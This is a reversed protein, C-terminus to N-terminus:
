SARRKESDHSTEKPQQLHERALIFGKKGTEKHTVIKLQKSQVAAKLAMEFDKRSMVNHVEGYLDEASLFRHFRVFNILEGVHRAEDVVGIAEFVRAMDPEVLETFDLAESLDEEEIVLEERKAAALIMALKHMHTQKRAIYGGYRDSAMHAPRASWHHAYWKEGFKYADETMSYPGGMEGIACLDEVLRKENQWFDDPRGQRAPYAVLHRKREAYVFVIRSTLGGGIMHEPFHNQIWSPTTAGIMNIWPNKIVPSGSSVTRHQWDILKGDWLDVMVDVLASDDMKLFTGLESIQLTIPSFITVRKTGKDDEWEVSAESEELARTLAQWTGSQPGFTVGPVQALMRMGIGITTSKTVVGAPGVLVIYFNPTWQYHLQDIWVRRRLAGAVTSIATWLHLSTPAESLKTHEVYAKIWNAFHRAM